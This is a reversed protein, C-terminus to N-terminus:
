GSEKPHKFPGEKTIMVGRGNPVGQRWYGEYREGNAYIFRGKGHPKGQQFSGEYRGQHIDQIYYEFVGEGNECDGRICGKHQSWLGVSCLLFFTIILHKSM